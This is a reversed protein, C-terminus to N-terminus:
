RKFIDVAKRRDHTFREDKEPFTLNKRRDVNSRITIFTDSVEIQNSSENPDFHNPNFINSM